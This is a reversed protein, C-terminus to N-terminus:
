TFIQPYLTYVLTYGEDTRFYNRSSKHCCPELWGRLNKEIKNKRGKGSEQLQHNNSKNKYKLIQKITTSSKNNRLVHVGRCEKFKRLIM